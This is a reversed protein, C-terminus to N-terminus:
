DPALAEVGDLLVDVARRFFDEPDRSMTIFHPVVAALAPLQDPDADDLVTFLRPPADSSRQLFRQTKRISGALWSMVLNYADAAGAAGLGMGLFRAAVEEAYRISHPGVPGEDLLVDAIGPFRLGTARTRLLLERLWDRPALDAPPLEVSGVVSDVVAEVLAERTPIHHYIATPWVGVRDALRRMSLAELGDGTVLGVAATVIADRTLPATTPRPM